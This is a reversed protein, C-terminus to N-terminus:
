SPRISYDRVEVDYMMEERLHWETLEKGYTECLRENM